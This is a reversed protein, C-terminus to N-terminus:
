RTTIPVRMNALQIVLSVIYPEIETILPKTGPNGSLTSRKLRQRISGENISINEGLDYKKKCNSIIETLAGKKVRENTIKYNAQVDELERVADGMAAKVRKKIHLSRAITSGKPRGGLGFPFENEADITNSTYEPDRRNSSSEAISDEVTGDLYTPNTLKSIDNSGSEVTVTCGIKNEKEVTIIYNNITKRSMEPITERGEKLLKSAYGWPVRGKIKTKEAVIMKAICKASSMILQKKLNGVRTKCNVSTAKM